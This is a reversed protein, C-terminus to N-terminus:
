SEKRLQVDNFHSKYESPNLVGFVYRHSLSSVAVVCIFCRVMSMSYQLVDSRVQKMRAKSFSELELFASARGFLYALQYFV